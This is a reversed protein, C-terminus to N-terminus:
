SRLWASGTSRGTRTSAAHFFSFLYTSMPAFLAAHNPLMGENTYFFVYDPVRRFLDVLLFVGFLIRFLGLTRPDATMFERAVDRWTQTETKEPDSM